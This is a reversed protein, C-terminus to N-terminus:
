GHCENGERNDHNVALDPSDVPPATEADMELVLGPGIEVRGAQEDIAVRAIAAAPAHKLGADVLRAMLLVVAWEEAPWRWPRGHGGGEPHLWKKEVWFTLQRPTPKVATDTQETTM